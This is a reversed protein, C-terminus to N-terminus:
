ATGAPPPPKPCSLDEGQVGLAIADIVEDDYIHHGQDRLDGVPARGWRRKYPSTDAACLYSFTVYEPVAPDWRISGIDNIPLECKQALLTALRQEARVRKADTM